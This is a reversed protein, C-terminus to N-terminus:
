VPLVICACPILLMTSLHMIVFAVEVLRCSTTCTEVPTYLQHSHRQFSTCGIATVAAAATSHIGASVVLKNSLSQLKNELPTLIGHMAPSPPKVAEMAAVAEKSLVKHVPLAAPAATASRAPAPSAASGLVANSALAAAAAEAISPQQQQPISNSPTLGAAPSVAGPPTGWEEKGSVPTDSRSNARSDAEAAENYVAQMSEWLEQAAAATDELERELDERIEVEQQLRNTLHQAELEAQQLSRM